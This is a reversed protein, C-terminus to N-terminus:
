KSRQINNLESDELEILKAYNHIAQESFDKFRFIHWPCKCYEIKNYKFSVGDCAKKCNHCEETEIVSRKISDTCEDLYSTYKSINRLNLKLEIENESGRKIAYITAFTKGKSKPHIYRTMYERELNRECGVEELKSNFKRVLATHEDHLFYYVENLPPAYLKSANKYMIRIDAKDFPIGGLKGCVSSFLKLGLLLDNNQPFSVRFNLVDKGTLKNKPKTPTMLEMECIYFGNDELSFLNKPNSFWARAKTDKSKYDVYVSSLDEEFKGLIGISYLCGLRSNNNKIFNYIEWLAAECRTEDYGQTYKESISIDNKEICPIKLM